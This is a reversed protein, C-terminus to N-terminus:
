EQDPLGFLEGLQTLHMIKRVQSSIARIRVTRGQEQLEKRLEILLALGSSDIYSLDALDLIVNGHVSELVELLRDRVKPTVSFDIEGSFVLVGPEKGAVLRWGAKQEQTDSLIM